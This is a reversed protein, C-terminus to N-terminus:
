QRKTAFLARQVQAATYAPLENADGHRERLGRGWDILREGLAALARDYRTPCDTQCDLAESLLRQSEANRAILQQRDRIMNELMYGNLM